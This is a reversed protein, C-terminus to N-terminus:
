VRFADKMRTHNSLMCRNNLFNHLSRLYQCMENYLVWIEFKTSDNAFEKSSDKPITFRGAWPPLYLNGWVRIKSPLEFKMMLLLYQSNHVQLSAWTMSKQAFTQWIVLGSYGCSDIFQVKLYFTTNRSFLCSIWSVVWFVACISKELWQAKTLLLLAKYTGM